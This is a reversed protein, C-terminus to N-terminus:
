KKDKKKSYAMVLRVISIIITAGGALVMVSGNGDFGEELISGLIISLVGCSIGIGVDVLQKHKRCIMLAGIILVAGASLHYVSTNMYTFIDFFFALVFIIVGGWLGITRLVLNFVSSKREAQIKFNIRESVQDYLKQIRSFDNSSYFLLKAKKYCQDMKMQWAVSLESKVDDGINTSALIMFETVDEKTNPIPFNCILNAKQADNETNSLLIAFEKVTSTVGAGRIEFGCTPCNTVFSELVEGCSPCKHIEGEYMTKRENSGGQSGIKEGCEYCFKANSDIEHGCNPCFPM